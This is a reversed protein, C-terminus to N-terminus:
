MAVRGMTVRRGFLTHRSMADCGQTGVPDMMGCVGRGLLTRCYRGACGAGWCPGVTSGPVDRAGVPDSLVAGSCGVGWCPGVNGGRVIQMGVPYWQSGRGPPLGAFFASFNVLFLCFRFRPSHTVCVPM